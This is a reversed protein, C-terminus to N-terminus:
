CHRIANKPDAHTFSAQLFTPSNSGFLRPCLTTEKFLLQENVVLSM